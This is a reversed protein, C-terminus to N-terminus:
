NGKLVTIMQTLKEKPSEATLKYELICIYNGPSLRTFDFDDPSSDDYNRFNNWTKVPVGWRDIITVTNEVTYEINVIRLNDNIGDLNYPTILDNIRLNVTEAIGITLIPRTVPQFSVVFDDSIGGGLNVATAGNTNDAEVVVLRQAADISSGPVYLSVGSGQFGSGTADVEWYRNNAIANVDLPLDLSPGSTFVRVGIETAGDQINGFAMPAYTTGAGIPYFRTGSGRQFLMGNVFSTANGSLTASGTYLIKGSGPTLIGATFTLEQTITWDGNTTKTGGGDVVLVGVSLPTTTTLTQNTGSLMIHAASVDTQTSSNNISSRVSVEGKLKVTSGSGITLQASVSLSWCFALVALPTQYHATRM